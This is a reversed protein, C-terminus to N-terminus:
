EAGVMLGNSAGSTPDSAIKLSSPRTRCHYNELTGLASNRSTQDPSSGFGGHFPKYYGAKWLIQPIDRLREESGFGIARGAGFLGYTGLRTSGPEGFRFM